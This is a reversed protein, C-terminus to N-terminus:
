NRVRTNSDETPRTPPPVISLTKLSNPNRRHGTSVLHGTGSIQWCPIAICMVYGTHRALRLRNITACPRSSSAMLTKIHYWDNPSLQLSGCTKSCMAFRLPLDIVSLSSSRCTTDPSVVDLGAGFYGSANPIGKRFYRERM